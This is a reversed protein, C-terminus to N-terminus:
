KAVADIGLGFLAEATRFARPSSGNDVGASSDLTSMRRVGSSSSSLTSSTSPDTRRTFPPQTAV